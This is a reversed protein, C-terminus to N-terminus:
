GTPEPQLFTPYIPQSMFVQKLPVDEGKELANVEAESLTCTVLVPEHGPELSALRKTATQRSWANFGAQGEIQFVLFARDPLPKVRRNVDKMQWRHFSTALGVTIREYNM